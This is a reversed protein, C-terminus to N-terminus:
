AAKGAATYPISEEKGMAMNPTYQINFYGSFDPKGEPTRPIAKQALAPVATLTLAAVWRLTRDHKM